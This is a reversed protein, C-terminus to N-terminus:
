NLTTVSRAREIIKEAVQRPTLGYTEIALADPVRILPSDPRNMDRADREAIQKMLEGLTVEHGTAVLESRRREAREEISATLYVKVEADVAVVSTTDRGELVYGGELIIQRQRSALVKRIAPKASLASALNALDPTRIAKTVDEGDLLVADPLFKIKSREALAAVEEADGEGLGARKALLAVCRYMAGTDLYSLGLEAAVIKAVTSKGAGAPGDIAIM